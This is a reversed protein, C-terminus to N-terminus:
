FKVVTIYAALVTTTAGVFTRSGGSANVLSLTSPNTGVNIMATSSLLIPTAQTSALRLQNVLLSNLQLSVSTTSTSSTSYGWSVLYFGPGTILLTGDNQLTIRSNAPTNVLSALPIIAGDAIAGSTTTRFAYGFDLSMGGIPGTAGTPGTPGTPGTAGTPGTPGM